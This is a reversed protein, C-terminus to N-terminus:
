HMFIIIVIASFGDIGNKTFSLGNAIQDKAYLRARSYRNRENRPVAWLLKGGMQHMWVLVLCVDILSWKRELNYIGSKVV